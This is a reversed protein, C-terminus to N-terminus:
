RERTDAALAELLQAQKLDPMAGDLASRARLLVANRLAAREAPRGLADLNELCALAATLTEVHAPGQSTAKRELITGLLPAAAARDGATIEITAHDALGM